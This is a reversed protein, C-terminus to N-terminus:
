NIDVLTCYLYGTNPTQSFTLTDGSYTATTFWGQGSTMIQVNSNEDINVISYICRNYTTDFFDLETLGGLDNTQLLIYSKNKVGSGVTYAYTVNYLSGIVPLKSWDIGGGGGISSTEMKVLM